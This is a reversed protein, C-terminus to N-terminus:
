WNYIDMGGRLDTGCLRDPHIGYPYTGAMLPKALTFVRLKPDFDLKCTSGRPTEVIAHVNEEDAWAPIKLLNTIDIARRRVSRIPWSFKPRVEAGRHGCRTCVFHTEIDSLRVHDPRRDTSIEILHGCRQDRCYILVERVGSESMEGFTIKQSYTLM